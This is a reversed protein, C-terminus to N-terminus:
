SNEIALLPNVQFLAAGRKSTKKDIKNTKVLFGQEQVNRRYNRKDLEKGLVVEYVRQLQTLTFLKPLLNAAIPEEWILSQIKKLSQSVMRDHDFILEPLLNM